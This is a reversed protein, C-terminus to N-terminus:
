PFFWFLLFFWLRWVKEQQKEALSSSDVEDNDILKGQRCVNLLWNTCVGNHQYADKKDESTTNFRVITFAFHITTPYALPSSTISYPRNQLHPLQL